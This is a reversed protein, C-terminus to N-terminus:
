LRTAMLWERIGTLKPSSVWLFFRFTIQEIIGALHVSVSITGLFVLSSWSQGLPLSAASKPEVNSFVGNWELSSAM